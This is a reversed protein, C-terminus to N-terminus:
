LYSNEIAYIHLMYFRIYISKTKYIEGIRGAIERVDDILDIEEPLFLEDDNFFDSEQWVINGEGDVPRDAYKRLDQM